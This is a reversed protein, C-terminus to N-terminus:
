CCGEPMSRNVNRMLLFTSKNRQKSDRDDKSFDDRLKDARNTQKQAPM